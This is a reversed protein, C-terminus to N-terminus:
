PTLQKKNIDSQQSKTADKIKQQLTKKYLKPGKLKEAFIVVFLSEVWPKFYWRHSNKAHNTSACQCNSTM